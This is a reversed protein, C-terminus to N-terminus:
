GRNTAFAVPFDSFWASCLPSSLTQGTFINVVHKSCESPLILRTDAWVSEGIPPKGVKTLKSILRPVAVICWQEGLRRAFAIVHDAKPGSVKIPLYGGGLFLDLNERRFSLAKRIVFMKIRGDGWRRLLTKLTVKKKLSAATEMRHQFDVPRRNDPDAVSFDWIEAGQYFDPIGPAAIKLLTQGLSNLAGFFALKRQLRLFDKLFADSLQPDLIRNVFEFVRREYEEDVQLWSTHTKAERLAKTLYTQLRECSIPWAGLLTQYILVQENAAPATDSPNWRRWRKLRREWEEPIESLVDIRCRADESRKTDHTSSANMTLPQRVRRELNRRHFEHVGFYIGPDSCDGGVENLSVLPNHVYFTTDELGKAMVPGTYQQWRLVFDLYERLRHAIYHPPELLLVGRLFALAEDHLPSGAGDVAYEITQRDAVTLAFDRIYTRYVPMCATVTVLAEQIEARTLDRATRHEVAMHELRDTLNKTEAAFLEGIVQRKRERFVEVQSADLCTFERYIRSLQAYGAADVFAGNLINLFDYGTTGQTKWDRPLSERGGLIKEVIVYISPLRDLYGKPDILGDIHDIRLGDVMENRILEFVTGHLARFVEDDEVHVGVLDNIDFFRRYNIADAAKRWYALRYPQDAIVRDVVDSTTAKGLVATAVPFEKDFYKVRAHGNDKYISIEGSELCDGYPKGLVPLLVKHDSWDIDFFRAFPSSEGHELVDYWWPNELSAAMHNPVFDLLLGLENQRLDRVFQEFDEPTGLEPNIQAPNTVDYGHASGRRAAFIPSAYVATIGLDRLYPLIRSADQFRFGANFQLRYTASWVKM